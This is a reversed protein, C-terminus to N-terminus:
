PLTHYLPKGRSLDLALKKNQYAAYQERLEALLASLEARTMSSFDM